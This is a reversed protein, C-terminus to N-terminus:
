IYGGRTTTAETAQVVVGMEERHSQSIGCPWLYLEDGRM